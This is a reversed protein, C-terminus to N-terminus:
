ERCREGQRTTPSSFQTSSKAEPAESKSISTSEANRMTGTAEAKLRSTERRPPRHPPPAASIGGQRGRRRHREALRHAIRQRKKPTSTRAFMAAM